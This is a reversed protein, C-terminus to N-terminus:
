SWRRLAREGQYKRTNSPLLENSCSVRVIRSTQASKGYEEIEPNGINSRSANEFGDQPPKLSEAVRVAGERMEESQM